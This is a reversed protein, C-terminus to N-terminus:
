FTGGIPDLEATLLQAFYIWGQGHFTSCARRKKPSLLGTGEVARQLIESYPPSKEAHKGTGQCGKQRPTSLIVSLLISLERSIVSLLSPQVLGIRSEGSITWLQHQKQGMVLGIDQSSATWVGLLQWAVVKEILKGLFPLHSIPCFHGPM